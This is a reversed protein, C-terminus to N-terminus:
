IVEYAWSEQGLWGYLFDTKQNKRINSYWEDKIEDGEEIFEKICYYACKSILGEGVIFNEETINTYKCVLLDTQLKNIETM